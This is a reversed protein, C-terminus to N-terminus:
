RVFWRLHRCLVVFLSPVGRFSVFFFLVVAMSFVFEGSFCGVPAPSLLLHHSAM